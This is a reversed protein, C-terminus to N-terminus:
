ERPLATYTTAYMMVSPVAGIWKGDLEEITKHSFDPGVLLIQQEGFHSSSFNQNEFLVLHTPKHTLKTLRETIAEQFEPDLAAWFKDYPMEKITM